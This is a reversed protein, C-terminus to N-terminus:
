RWPPRTGTLRNWFIANGIMKATETTASIRRTSSTSPWITNTTAANATAPRAQASPSAVSCAPSDAPGRADARSLALKPLRGSTTIRTSAILAPRSSMARAEIMPETIPLM